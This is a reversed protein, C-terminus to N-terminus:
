CSHVVLSIVGYRVPVGTQQRAYFAPVLVKVLSIGLFAFAYAMLAWRTMDVDRLGFEGHQFLTSVLPGALLILGGTAPVGVLLLM